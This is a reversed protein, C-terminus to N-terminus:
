KASKQENMYTRIRTVASVGERTLLRGEAAKLYLEMLIEKETLSSIGPVPSEDLLADMIGSIGDFEDGPLATDMLLKVLPLKVALDRASYANRVDNKWGETLMWHRIEMTEPELYHVAHIRGWGQVRRAAEYVEQMGNKWDKMMTVCQFTFEDSLSLVRVIKQIQGKEELTYNSVLALAFKIHDRDAETMLEQLAFRLFSEDHMVNPHKGMWEQLPGIIDIMHVFQKKSDRIARSLHRSAKGFAGNKIEYLVSTYPMLDVPRAKMHYLRVGDEAGDLFRMEPATDASISADPLRFGRPLAGNQDLNKLITTIIPEAAM